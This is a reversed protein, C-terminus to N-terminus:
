LKRARELMVDYPAEIGTWWEFSAAAQLVLFEVGDLAPVGSERAWTVAPTPVDGYALDILGSAVELVEGPLSEGEMGLPTANIVVAGVVPVQLSLIGVPGGRRALALARNRNRAALYTVRGGAGVLAAGAAGGSGLILIPAGADFRPDAVARRTAMVDTSHGEVMGSRFRLTNVSGAASAEPTLTQCAMAAEEKLPMTINAGQLSGERLEAVARALEPSGALRAEYSGDIGLHRMAAMHIVPSRSHAIPDGLVALRM